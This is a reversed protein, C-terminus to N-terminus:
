LTDLIASDLQKIPRNPPFHMRVLLFALVEGLIVTSYDWLVVNWGVGGYCGNVQM